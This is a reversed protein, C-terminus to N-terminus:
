PGEEEEKREAKVKLGITWHVGDYPIGEKYTDKIILEATTWDIEKCGKDIETIMDDIHDRVLYTTLEKEAVLRLKGFWVRTGNM